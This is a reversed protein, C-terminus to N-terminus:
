TTPTPPNIFPVPELDQEALLDRRAYTRRRRKGKPAESEEVAEATPNRLDQVRLGVMKQVHGRAEASPVDDQHMWGRVGAQLTCPQGQATLGPIGSVLPWVKVLDRYRVIELV